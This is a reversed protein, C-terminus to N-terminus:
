VDLEIKEVFLTSSYYKFIDKSSKGEIMQDFYIDPNDTIEAIFEKLWKNLNAKSSFYHRKVDGDSWMYIHKM